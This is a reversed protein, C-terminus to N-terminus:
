LEPISLTETKLGGSHLLQTLSVPVKLADQVAELGEAGWLSSCIAFTDGEDNISGWDLKEPSSNPTAAPVLSFTTASGRLSLCVPAQSAAPPSPFPGPM